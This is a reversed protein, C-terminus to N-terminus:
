PENYWLYKLTGRFNTVKESGIPQSSTDLAYQAKVNDKSKCIILGLTPGDNEGKLHHNVTVM